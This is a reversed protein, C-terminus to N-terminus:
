SRLCRGAIRGRGLWGPYRGVVKGCRFYVAGRGVETEIKAAQILHTGRADTSARVAIFFIHMNRETHANKDGTNLGQPVARVGAAAVRYVSCPGVSLELRQNVVDQRLGSGYITIRWLDRFVALGTASLKEITSLHCYTQLLCSWNFHQKVDVLVTPKNPGVPACSM